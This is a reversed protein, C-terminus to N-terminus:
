IEAAPRGEVRWLDDSGLEAEIQFDLLNRIEGAIGVRRRAIEFASSEEAADLAAGSARLDGQFRARFDIRTSNGLSSRHTIEGGSGCKGRRRRATRSGTAPETAM